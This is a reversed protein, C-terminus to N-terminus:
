LQQPSYQQKGNCSIICNTMYIQYFERFILVIYLKSIKSLHHRNDDLFKLNKGSEHM